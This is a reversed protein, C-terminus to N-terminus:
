LRELQELLWKKETLPSSQEIEEKLKQKQAEDYPAIRLLKRTFRIINKYNAQHYGMIKKRQLYTRMSSLLSDLANIEDLEYYIKLLMTKAVLTLLIDDYDAQVLLEMATKYDKKEYYLRALNTNVQGERHKEDLYPSYRHIFREVWEFEKLNLGAIVINNYTFRSLLGNELLLEEELGQKYLDFTERLFETKGANIRGICYNILLLVIIRKEHQPFQNGHTALLKKLHQYHSVDDPKVIAKYIHYYIGIAPIDLYSPQTEIQALLTDLFRFQYESKYVAQHSLMICSLQLKNALYAIDNADSVEQLNLPVTRSLGSLFAYEELQLLYENEYYLHNRWPLKEQLKRGADMAKNFLRALQKKRYVRALMVQSRVEDDVMEQYTLFSEIAKFLFHMVQRMVADDYDAKGFVVEYASEKSLAKESWLNNGDVLYEFLVVVDQRQNHAPSLLWKRLDRIEKKSLTRLVEVLHSKEM